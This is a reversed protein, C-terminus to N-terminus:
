AMDAAPTKPTTNKEDKPLRDSFLCLELFRLDGWDTPNAHKGVESGLFDAYESYAIRKDYQHRHVMGFHRAIRSDWIPWVDPALFHMLKSTGVWSTNLLPKDPVEGARIANINATKLNEHDKLITPMWGYTAHGLVMLDEATEVRAGFACLAAYSQTYHEQKDASAAWNANWKAVFPKLDIPAFKM